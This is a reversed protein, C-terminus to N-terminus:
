PVALLYKLVQRPYQMPEVYRWSRTKPYYCEVSELTKTGSWGGVQRHGDTCGFMLRERGGLASHLASAAATELARLRPRLVALVRDDIVAAGLARRGTQMHNIVISRDWTGLTGDYVQACVPSARGAPSGTGDPIIPRPGM